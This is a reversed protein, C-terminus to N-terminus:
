RKLDEANTTASALRKLASVSVLTEIALTVLSVLLFAGWFPVQMPKMAMYIGAGIALSIMLRASSGSILVVSWGFAPRAPLLAVVAVWVLSAVTAVGAGLMAAEGHAGSRTWWL